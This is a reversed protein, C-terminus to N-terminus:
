SAYITVTAVEYTSTIPEEGPEDSAHTVTFRTGPAVPVVRLSTKGKQADYWGYDLEGDEGLTFPFKVKGEVCYGFWEHRPTVTGDSELGCIFVFRYTPDLRGARVYSATIRTM